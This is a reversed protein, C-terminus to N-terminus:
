HIHARAANSPFGRSGVATVAAASGSIGAGTGAFLRECVAITVGGGEDGRHSPVLAWLSFSIRHRFGFSVKLSQGSQVSITTNGAPSNVIPDSCLLSSSGTCLTVIGFGNAALLYSTVKSLQSAHTM